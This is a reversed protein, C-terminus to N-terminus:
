FENLALWMAIYAEFAVKAASFALKAHPDIEGIPQAIKLVNGMSGLLNIWEPCSLGVESRLIQMVIGLGELDAVTYLCKKELPLLKFQTLEASTSIRSVKLTLMGSMKESKVEYEFNIIAIEAGFLMENVTIDRSAINHLNHMYTHKCAINANIKSTKSLKCGFRKELGSNLEKNKEPFKYMLMAKNDITIILIYTPERLCSSLKHEQCHRPLGSINIAEIIIDM